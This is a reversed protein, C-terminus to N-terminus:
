LFEDKHRTIFEDLATRLIDTANACDVFRNPNRVMWEWLASTLIEVLATSFFERQRELWKAEACNLEFRIGWLDPPATGNDRGVERIDPL